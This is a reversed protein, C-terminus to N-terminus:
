SGYLEARMQEPSRGFRRQFAERFRRTTTFGTRHAVTDMDVPLPSSLRQRARDLRITRLLAAPALGTAETLASHLTRRSCGCMGAVADPTLRSDGCHIEMIERARAALNAYKGGVAVHTHDHNLVGDLLVLASSYAVAFDVATWHGHGAHLEGIQRVLSRVLPRRGDLALPANGARSLDVSTEPVTMILARLPEDQRMVLPAGWQFFAPTGPAVVETSDGQAFKFEGRLPLLLRYSDDGDSRVDRGTRRYHVPDSDFRVIQMRGVRQAITSWTFDDVDDGFALGVSGQRSRLYHHWYEMREALTEASASSEEEWQYESDVLLEREREWGFFPKM